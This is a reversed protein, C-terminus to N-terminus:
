KPADLRQIVLATVDIAEDAYILGSEFKRFIATYGMEKGMQSIVPMVKKDIDALVEDRKKNLNRTSDDQKRRVAILKEELQKTFQALQDQPLSQRGDNIRAQLGKIEEQMRKIDNELTEQLTKLSALANKGTLSSLLIKETDIVGIKVASQVPAAAPSAQTGILTALVLAM